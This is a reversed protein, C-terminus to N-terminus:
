STNRRARRVIAEYVPFDWETAVRARVHGHRLRAALAALQELSRAQTTHKFEETNVAVLIRRIAPM